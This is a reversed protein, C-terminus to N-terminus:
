IYKSRSGETRMSVLVAVLRHFLIEVVHKATWVYYSLTVSPRVSLCRVVAFLM